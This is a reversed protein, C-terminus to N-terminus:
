KAVAYQARVAVLEERVAELERQFQQEVGAAREDFDALLIAPMLLTPWALDEGLWELKNNSVQQLLTNSWTGKVEGAGKNEEKDEEIAVPAAEFEVKGKLEM